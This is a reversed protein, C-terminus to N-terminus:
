GVLRHYNSDSGCSSKGCVCTNENWVETSAKSFMAREFGEREYTKKLKLLLPPPPLFFYQLPPLTWPYLSVICRNPFVFQGQPQYWGVQLKALVFDTCIMGDTSSADNLIGSGSDYGGLSAPLLSSNAESPVGEVSDEKMLRTLLAHVTLGDTALPMIENRAAGQPSSVSGQAM